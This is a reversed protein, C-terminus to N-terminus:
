HCLTSGNVATNSQSVGQSITTTLGGPSTINLTITGSTVADSFAVSVSVFTANLSSPVPSGGAVTVTLGNTGTVSTLTGAAVPNLRVPNNDALLFSVLGSKPMGYLTTSGSLATYAKPRIPAATVDDYGGILNQPTGPKSTTDTVLPCTSGPNAYLKAPVTNWMPRALSTSLVTEAARRVYARGWKGDCTQGGVTPITPGLALLPTGVAVCQTMTSGPISLPLLQDVAPQYTNVFSRSLFVSGLDQFQTDPPTDWINNGNTDLFSEEGLTYALVTVRGDLPRPSSSIYNASARALGGVLATTKIPEIQGGEAIFNISTGTPVPNALRDSAIISYTNSTGDIDYGEINFKTQSLSFNLESPLGVAISLSSSVTTAGNLTAKVGVPTPVTGSNILVSVRGLSDSLKTVASSGGDITLNGALTTAQLKVSQNPLGNGATDVVTFVVTSTETLGSGKLYITEPTASTFTVSSVQPSTLGITLSRTNSTGVISARVTDSAAIAGCGGDRYTFTAVGTSTSVTAPTITAKGKAVCDSAVAVDILAGPAAGAVSVTLKTQGYAELASPTVDATFDSITAVPVVLQFGQSAQLPSGNVTASAIVQDAGGVGAGVASLVVSASGKADTLASNFNFKGLSDVTSFKVVQGAVGAGTTDKVVAVVTAPTSATILTNSLTLTISPTGTAPAGTAVASFGATATVSAGAVVATAVALDAGNTTTNAPSLKVSVTGNADSLASSPNFAGLGDITNFKVVVKSLPNGAADKVTSTVTAPATSTVTTSSLEISMSPSGVPPLSSPTVQFGITGSADADAVTAKAVVLDAGNSTPSAPSLEVTAVGDSGTLATAASFAGLGGNTSFSVVQGAQAVGKSDRVTATVKASESSTITTTSISVVVSPVGNSGGGDGDTPTCGPGCYPVDSGGCAAVVLGVMMTLIAQIIKRM